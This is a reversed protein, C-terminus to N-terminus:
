RRSMSVSMGGHLGHQRHQSVETGLAVLVLGVVRLQCGRQLALAEPLLHTAPHARPETPRADVSVHERSSYRAPTPACFCGYQFAVPDTCAHQLTHLLLSRVSSTFVFVLKKTM